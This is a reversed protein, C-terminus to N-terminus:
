LVTYLEITYRIASSLFVPFVYTENKLVNYRSCILEINLPCAKKLLLKKNDLIRRLFQLEIVRYSLRLIFDAIFNNNLIPRISCYQIVRTYLLYNIEKKRNNYLSLRRRPYHQWFDSSLIHIVIVTTKM